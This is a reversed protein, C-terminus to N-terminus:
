LNILPFRFVVAYRGIQHVFILSAVIEVSSVFHKPQRQSLSSPQFFNRFARLLDRLHGFGKFLQTENLFSFRNETLRPRSISRYITSINIRFFLKFIQRRLPHKVPRPILRQFPHFVKLM